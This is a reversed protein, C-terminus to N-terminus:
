TGQFTDGMVEHTNDGRWPAGKYPEACLSVQYLHYMQCPLLLGDARLGAQGIGALLQRALGKLGHASAACGIDVADHILEALPGIRPERHDLAIDAEVVFGVDKRMKDSM